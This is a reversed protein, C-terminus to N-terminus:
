KITDLNNCVQLWQSPDGYIEERTLLVVVVAPVKTRHKRLWDIKLIGFPPLLPPPAKMDVSKREKGGFVSAKSFDPLALTNIPVPEAHLYSSIVSHLETVGVLAVLPLPPTRLEQSYLEEM